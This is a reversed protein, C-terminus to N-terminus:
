AGRPSALLWLGFITYAIMLVSLGFQISILDKNKNCFRGALHHTMLVSIVHSVVVAGAQTLWIVKVSAQTNLFGTTIRLDGLGFLHAIVIGFPVAGLLYGGVGALGHIIFTENM